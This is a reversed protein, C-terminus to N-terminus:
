DGYRDVTDDKEAKDAFYTDIANVLMANGFAEAKERLALLAVSGLKRSSNAFDILMIMIDSESTIANYVMDYEEQTGLKPASEYSEPPVMAELKEDSIKDFFTLGDVDGCIDDMIKHIQNNIARNDRYAQSMDIIQNEDVWIMGSLYKDERSAVLYMGNTEYYMIEYPKLEGGVKVFVLDGIKPHKKPHM